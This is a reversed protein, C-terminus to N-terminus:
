FVFGLTKKKKFKCISIHKLFIIKGLSFFLFSGFDKIHVFLLLLINIVVVVVFRNM